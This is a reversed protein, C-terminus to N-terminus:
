PLLSLVFGDVDADSAVVKHLDHGLVSLSQAFSGTVVVQSAPGEEMHSVDDDGPGGFPIAGLLTGSKDLRLLVIDRGAATVPGFGFDVEGRFTGVVFV